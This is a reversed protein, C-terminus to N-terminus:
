QCSFGEGSLDPSILSNHLCVNQIYVFEEPSSPWSISMDPMLVQRREHCQAMHLTPGCTRHPLEIKTLTSRTWTRNAKVSEQILQGDSTPLMARNVLFM